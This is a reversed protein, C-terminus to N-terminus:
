RKRKKEKQVDRKSNSSKSKKKNNKPLEDESDESSDENLIIEDGGGSGEDITLGKVRLGKAEDEAERLKQLALQRDEETREPCDRVLHTKQLCIHCCGGNPYLGNANEPCDRSIHGQQKCIFCIAFQLKGLPDRPKSCAKLSHDASGCNFCIETGPLATKFPVMTVKPCDKLFHGRKRCGLCITFNAEEKERETELDKGFKRKRDEKTIKPLSKKEKVAIRLKQRESLETEGLKALKSVKRREAKTIESSNVMEALAHGSLEGSQVKRALEKLDQM